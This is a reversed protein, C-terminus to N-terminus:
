GVDVDWDVVLAGATTNRFTLSLQGQVVEAKLIRDEPDRVSGATIAKNVPGDFTHTTLGSMFTARIDGRAAGAQVGYLSLLTPSPIIALPSGLLVNASTSNAAVSVTGSVRPM